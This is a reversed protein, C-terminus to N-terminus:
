EKRLTFFLGLGYVGGVWKVGRFYRRKPMWITGIVQWGMRATWTLSKEDSFAVKKWKEFLSCFTAPLLSQPGDEAKTANDDDNEDM